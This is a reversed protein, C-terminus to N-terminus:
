CLYLICPRLMGYIIIYLAVLKPKVKLFVQHSVMVKLDIRLYKMHCM